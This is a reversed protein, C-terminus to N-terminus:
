FVIPEHDKAPLTVLGEVTDTGSALVHGIAPVSFLAQRGSHASEDKRFSM